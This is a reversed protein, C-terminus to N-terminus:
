SEEEKVGGGAEEDFGGYGGVAEGGADWLGRAGNRGWVGGIMECIQIKVNRASM